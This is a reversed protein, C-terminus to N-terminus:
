LIYKHRRMEESNLNFDEILALNSSNFLKMIQREEEESPVRIKKEKAVKQNRIKSPLLTHYMKRLLLYSSTDSIKRLAGRFPATLYVGLPPHNASVYGDPYKITVNKSNHQLIEKIYDGSVRFISAIADYYGQKKQKLDEFVALHVNDKGFLSSAHKAMVYYNFPLKNISTVDTFNKKFWNEFLGLYKGHQIIFHYTEAYFSSILSTQSRIGILIEISDFIGDFVEYIRDLNLYGEYGLNAWSFDKEFFSLHENSIVAISKESDAIPELEEKYDIDDTQHTIYKITKACTIEGFNPDPRGLHNLYEIHGERYLESLLNLQITSTATKPFGIHVVLKKKADKM